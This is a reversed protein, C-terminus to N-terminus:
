IQKLNSRERLFKFKLRLQWITVHVILPLHWWSVLKAPTLENLLMQKLFLDVLVFWVRYNLTLVDFALGINQPESRRHKLRKVVYRTQNSKAVKNKFCINNFSNVRALNTEYHCTGSITCTVMQCNRSFNLNGLSGLLKFCTYCKAM